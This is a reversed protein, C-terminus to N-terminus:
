QTNAIKDLEIPSLVYKPVMRYIILEYIYGKYGTFSVWLQVTGSSPKPLSFSGDAATVAKANTPKGNKALVVEAGALPKETQKSFVNGCIQSVAHAPFFLCCLLVYFKSM